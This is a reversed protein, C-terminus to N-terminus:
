ETARRRRRQGGHRHATVVAIHVSRGVLFGREHGARGIADARRGGQRKGAVPEVDRHRRGAGFVEVGGRRPEFGGTHPDHGEHEIEARLGADLAGHGVDNRCEAMEIQEDVIGAAVQALERDVHGPRLPVGDHRAIQAAGKKQALLDAAMQDRAAPAPAM